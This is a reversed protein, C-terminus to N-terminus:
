NDSCYGRKQGTFITSGDGDYSVRVVFGSHSKVM